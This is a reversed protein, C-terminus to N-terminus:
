LSDINQFSLQWIEGNAPPTKGARQKNDRALKYFRLAYDMFGYWGGRPQIDNFINEFVQIEELAIRQTDHPIDAQCAAAWLWAVNKFRPWLTNQINAFSFTPALAALEPYQWMQELKPIAFIISEKLSKESLEHAMYIIGCVQGQMIREALSGKGNETFGPWRLHESFNAWSGFLETVIEMVSFGHQAFNVEPMSECQAFIRSCECALYGAFNDADKPFLMAGAVFSLYFEEGLPLVKKGQYVDMPFPIIKGRHMEYIPTYAMSGRM